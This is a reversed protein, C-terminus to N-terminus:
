MTLVGAIAGLGLTGVQLMNHQREWPHQFMQVAQFTKQQHILHELAEM